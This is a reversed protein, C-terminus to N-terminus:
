SKAGIGSCYNNTSERDTLCKMRELHKTYNWKDQFDVDFTHRFYTVRKVKHCLYFINDSRKQKTECKEHLISIPSLKNTHRIVKTKPSFLLSPSFLRILCLAFHRPRILFIIYFEFYIWFSFSPFLPRSFVFDLCNARIKKQLYQITRLAKIRGQLLTLWM